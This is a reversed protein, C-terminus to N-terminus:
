TKDSMIWPCKILRQLSVKLLSTIKAIKPNIICMFEAFFITGAKIFANLIQLIFTFPDDEINSLSHCLTKVKKYTEFQKWDSTLTM